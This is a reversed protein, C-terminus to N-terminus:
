MAEEFTDGQLRTWWEGELRTFFVNGRHFADNIEPQKSHVVVSSNRHMFICNQSSLAPIYQPETRGTLGLSGQDRADTFLHAFVAQATRQTAGVQLVQGLNGANPYYLCWGQLTHDATFLALKRLPGYEKKDGANRILWGLSEETYDPVLATKATFRRIAALLDGTSLDESFFDLKDHRFPSKPIVALTRDILYSVPKSLIALPAIMKNRTGMRMTFELPRLVRLWQLSYVPIATSGLGELMKRGQDTATDTYSLDQPGSLFMKLLRPGGMLNTVAPDIMFNGGVAARIPRGQFLMRFPMVGIFGAIRGDRKFVISSIEEDRWPNDLYIKEFYPALATPPSPNTRRFVKQFLEAVGPIDTRELRTYSDM